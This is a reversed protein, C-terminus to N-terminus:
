ESYQQGLLKLSESSYREKPELIWPCTKSLSESQELLAGIVKIKEKFSLFCFRKNTYYCNQFPKM